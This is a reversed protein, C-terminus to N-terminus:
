DDRELTAAATAGAPGWRRFLSPLPTWFVLAAAPGERDAFHPLEAISARMRLRPARRRNPRSPDVRRRTM